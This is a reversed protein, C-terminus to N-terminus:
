VTVSKIIRIHGNEEAISVVDGSKIRSSIIMKALENEIMDTVRRKIPRAGYKETEKAAAIAKVVEETYSM